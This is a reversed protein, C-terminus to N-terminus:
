KPRIKHAFISSKVFFHLDKCMKEAFFKCIHIKKQLKAALYTHIYVCACM